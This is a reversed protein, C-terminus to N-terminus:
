KNEQKYKKEEEIWKILWFREKPTVGAYFMGIVYLCKLNDLRRFLRAKEESYLKLLRKTEESMPRSYDIAKM